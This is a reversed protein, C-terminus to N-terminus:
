IIGVIDDHDYGFNELAYQVIQCHKLGPCMGVLEEPTLHPSYVQAVKDFLSGYYHLEQPFNICTAGYKACVSEIEKKILENTADSFVILEYDDKEKLFKNLLRCQMELFDPRNYHFTLIRIRSYIHLSSLSLIAILLHQLKM